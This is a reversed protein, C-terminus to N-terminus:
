DEVKSHLRQFLPLSSDVLKMLPAGNFITVLPQSDDDTVFLWPTKSLAQSPTLPRIKNTDRNFKGLGGMLSHLMRMEGWGKM